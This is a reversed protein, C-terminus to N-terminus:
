NAIGDAISLHKEKKVDEGADPTAQPKKKKKKKKKAVRIATFHFRLTRKIQMEM